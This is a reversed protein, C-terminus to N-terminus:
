LVNRRTAPMTKERLDVEAAEVMFNMFFKFNELPCRTRFVFYCLKNAKICKMTKM